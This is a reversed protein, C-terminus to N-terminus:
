KCSLTLSINTDIDVDIDQKRSPSHKNNITPIHRYNIKIM